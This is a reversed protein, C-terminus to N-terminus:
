VIRKLFGQDHMGPIFFFTCPCGNTEAKPFAFLIARYYMQYSLRTQATGRYMAEAPLLVFTESLHM